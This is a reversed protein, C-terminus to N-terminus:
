LDYFKALPHPDNLGGNREVFPVQRGGEALGVLDDLIDDVGLILYVHKICFYLLFKPQQGCQMLDHILLEVITVYPGLVDLDKCNSLTANLQQILDSLLIEPIPHPTVEISALSFVELYLIDEDISLCLFFLFKPDNSVVADIQGQSIHALYVEALIRGEEFIGDGILRGKEQRRDARVVKLTLPLILM